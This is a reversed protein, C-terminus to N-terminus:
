PFFGFSNSFSILWTFLLEESSYFRFSFKENKYFNEFILDFWSFRFQKEHLKSLCWFNTQLTKNDYIGVQIFKFDGNDQLPKFFM